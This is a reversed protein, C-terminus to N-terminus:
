NRNFEYGYGVYETEEGDIVCSRNFSFKLLQDQPRTPGKLYLTTKMGDDDTLFIFQPFANDDFEWIGSSPLYNQGKDGPTFEFTFDTSNFTVTMVTVDDGTYFSSIDRSPKALDFEDVEIVAELIWTGNIGEVQNPPPDLTYTKKCNSVLIILLSLGLLLYLKNRNMM